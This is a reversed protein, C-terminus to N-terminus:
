DKDTSVNTTVVVRALEEMEIRIDSDRRLTALAQQFVERQKLFRLSAVIEERSEEFTKQRGERKDTIMFLAFYPDVAEPGIVDGVKAAFFRDGMISYGARTNFGLDGDRRAAWLRISHSRALRAFSEGKHLRALLGAAEERTRVLIESVRVEPPFRYRHKEAEYQQQLLTEPWGSRGVSDQVTSTWRRLLFEDWVRQVQSRVEPDEELGATRARGVLEERAALGIVLSQLDERTLVRKRQKETTRQLRTLFDGITWPGQAFRVLELDSLHEPVGSQRSVERVKGEKPIMQNWQAILFSLASENFVPDLADGIENVTGRILNRTKREFVAHALKQKTMAYDYESVLPQRVRSEVKIIAYGMSLKVPDSIEGIPLTFAEEELAPEMEGWGFTGLSGGNHALGPDDFVERALAEFTAGQTLRDKLTHAGEKTGAYLYRASVKSNYRIFERQLEEESVQATDTSILRSYRDLLAQLEIEERRTRAVPDSDLGQRRLDNRILLENIMNDLIKRRQLINDREGANPLFQSYRSAFESATIAHGQVEAVVPDDQTGCSTVLLTVSALVILTCRGTM